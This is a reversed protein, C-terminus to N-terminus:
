LMNGAVLAAEIRHAQRQRHGAILQRLQFLDHLTAPGQLAAFV